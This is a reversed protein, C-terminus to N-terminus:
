SARRSLLDAYMGVWPAAAVLYTMIAAAALVRQLPARQLAASLTLVLVALAVGPLCLAAFTELPVQTVLYWNSVVYIAALITAALPLATSNRGEFLAAALPLTLKAPIYAYLMADFAWPPILYSRVLRETISPANLALAIVAATGLLRAIEGSSLRIRLSAASRVHELIMKRRPFGFLFLATVLLLAPSFQRLRYTLTPALTTHLSADVALVVGRGRDPLEILVGYQRTGPEETRFAIRIEAQQAPALDLHDPNQTVVDLRPHDDRKDPNGMAAPFWRVDAISESGINQIRAVATFVQDDQVVDPTIGLSVFRIVDRLPPAPQGGATSVRALALSLLAGTLLLTTILPVRPRIHSRGRSEPRSHM